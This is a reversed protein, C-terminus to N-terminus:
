IKDPHLFPTFQPRRTESLLIRDLDFYLKLGLWWLYVGHQTVEFFSLLGHSLKNRFNVDIGSQLFSEMEFRTEEVFINELQKFISGLIAEDQREEELKALTGHHIEAIARLANEIQPMLIHSASIFDEEFGAMFGKIWLLLRDEDHLFCPKNREMLYYFLSEEINIDMYNAKKVSSWLTYLIKQRFYIHAETRLSNEPNGLGITNGKNDLRSTNMMSSIISGKRSINVYRDINEKSAFPINRLFSIFDISCKWKDNAVWQDIKKKEEEGFPMEIRIGAKSLFEAFYTNARILKGKIRQCIEHEVLKIESIEKYANHYIQPLNPYFTNEEQNNWINDAESEFSLAKLKYYEQKSINKLLFLVDVYQREAHHTKSKKAEQICTEVADRIKSLKESSYSKVLVKV